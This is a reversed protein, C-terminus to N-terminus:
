VKTVKVNFKVNLYKMFCYGMAIFKWAEMKIFEFKHIIYVYGKGETWTTRGILHYKQGFNNYAVIIAHNDFFRWIHRCLKHRYLKISYIKHCYLKHYSRKDPPLTQPPLLTVNITTFNIDVSYLSLTVTPYLIKGKQSLSCEWSRLYFEKETTSESQQEFLFLEFCVNGLLAAVVVVGAQIDVFVSSFQLFTKCFAASIDSPLHILWVSWCGLQICYM